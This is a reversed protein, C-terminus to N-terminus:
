PQSIKDLALNLRLVNVRPEGIFGLAPKETMQRVLAQIQAEPLHRAAAVRKVQLEAFAPSIDPDLGSASATVADAPIPQDKPLGLHAIDGEIREKLKASTPGFNSGSSSSADYGKEGAASPRGWFYTDGSFNQGIWESGIIKGEKEILSGNAQFPFATQAIFTVLLPYLIGTLLTFLSLLVFAPRLHTFM